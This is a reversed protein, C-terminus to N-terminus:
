SPNDMLLGLVAMHPRSASRRCCSWGISLPIRPHCWVTPFLGEAARHQPLLDRPRSEACQIRRTSAQAGIVTVEAYSQADDILKQAWPAITGTNHDRVKDLDFAGHETLVFGIGDFENNAAAVVAAYPSWTTPDNNKAKAGSPQYPVKTWKDKPKEWRWLVWYPLKTLPAIASP